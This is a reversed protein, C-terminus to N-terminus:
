TRGSTTSTRPSGATPRCTSTPSTPSSRCSAPTSPLRAGRAGPPQVGLRRARSRLPRHLRDARAPRPFVAQRPGQARRHLVRAAHHQPLRAGDPRAPRVGHALRAIRDLLSPDPRGAARREGIMDRYDLTLPELRPDATEVFIESTTARPACCASSGSSRTASRTAMASRPWSRTCARRAPRTRDHRRRATSARRDITPASPCAPWSAAAAAPRDTRRRAFWGPLPEIARAPAPERRCGRSCTSTSASSSRGPTTAARLVRPRQTRAPRAAPREIRARLASRRVRRLERLVARRQQPHVAGQARRVPRQRAGAPRAGLGRARGDVPERLVVAHDAPRGRRARRVQGPGLPVRSPPHSPADPIPM